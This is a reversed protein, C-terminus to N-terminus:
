PRLPGVLRFGSTRSNPTDTDLDAAVGALTVAAGFGATQTAGTITVTPSKGIPADGTSADIGLGPPGPPGAEGPPGPPGPPGADGAPGAPGRAGTCAALSSGCPDSNGTSFVIGTM